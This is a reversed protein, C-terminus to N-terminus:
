QTEPKWKDCVGLESCTNEDIEDNDMISCQIQHEYEWTKNNCTFCCKPSIVKYNLKKKLRKIRRINKQIKEDWEDLEAHTMTQM